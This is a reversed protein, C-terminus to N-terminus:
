LVLGETTAPTALIEAVIRAALKVAGEEVRRLDLGEAMALTARREATEDDERGADHIGFDALATALRFATEFPTADREVRRTEAVTAIDIEILALGPFRSWHARLAALFDLDSRAMAEPAVTAPRAAIIRQGMTAVALHLVRDDEVGPLADLRYVACTAEVPNCPVLFDEGMAARYAFDEVAETRCELETLLAFPDHQAIGLISGDRSVTVLAPSPTPPFHTM